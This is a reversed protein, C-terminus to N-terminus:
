FASARVLPAGPLQSLCGCHTDSSRREEKREGTVIFYVPIGTAAIFSAAARRLDAITGYLMNQTNNGRALLGEEAAPPEPLGAPCTTSVAGSRWLPVLPLTCASMEQAFAAETRQPRNAVPLHSGAGKPEASTDSILVLDQMRISMVRETTPM